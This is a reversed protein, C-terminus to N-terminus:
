KRKIYFKDDTQGEILSYRSTEIGNEEDPDYTDFLIAYCTPAQVRLDEIDITKIGKEYLNKIESEVQAGQSNETSKDQMNTKKENEIEDIIEDDNYPMADDNNDTNNIHDYIEYCVWKDMAKVKNLTKQSPKKGSKELMNLAKKIDLIQEIGTKADDPLNAYSLGHKNIEKEYQFEM